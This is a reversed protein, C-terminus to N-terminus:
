WIGLPVQPGYGLTRDFGIHAGWLLPMELDMGAGFLVAALLMPSVDSHAVNDLAAGLRPGALYGAFSLDPALFLVAFLPWSGGGHAYLYVSGALVMAADLRLWRRVTGHVAGAIANM